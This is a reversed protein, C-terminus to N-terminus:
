EVREFHLDEVEWANQGTYHLVCSYYNHVGSGARASLDVYGAVRYRAPGWREIVSDKQASIHTAGRFAPTEEVYAVAASYAKSPSTHRWILASEIKRSGLLVLLVM